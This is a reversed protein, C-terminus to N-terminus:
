DRRPSGLERVLQGFYNILTYSFFVLVTSSLGFGILIALLTGLDGSFAAIGFMLVGMLLVTITIPVLIILILLLALIGIIRLVRGETSIPPLPRSDVRRARRPRRRRTRRARAPTIEDSSHTKNVCGMTVCSQLEDHCEQHLSTECVECVWTEEDILGDFCYGCREKDSEKKAVSITIRSNM